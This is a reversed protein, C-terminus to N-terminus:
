TRQNADPAGILFDIMRARYVAQDILFDAINFAPWQWDKYYIVIFDIVYGYTIRDILNGMAGGLVLSLALGTKKDKASLKGLWHFVVIGVLIALVIFFWQQWGSADALIGFAAGTNYSLILDFGPFLTKPKVVTLNDVSLYKTYQDFLVWVAALLLWLIRNNKTKKSFM